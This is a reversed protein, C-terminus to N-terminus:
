AAATRRTRRARRPEPPRSEYQSGPVPNQLGDLYADIVDLKYAVKRGIAFSRPGIDRQRYKYLTQKSLGLRTAAEEIWICGPPAPRTHGSSKPM